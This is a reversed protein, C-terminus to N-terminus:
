GGSDTFVTNEQAKAAGRSVVCPGKRQLRKSHGRLGLVDRGARLPEARSLNGLPNRRALDVRDGLGGAPGGSFVVREKAYTM